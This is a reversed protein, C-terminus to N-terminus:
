AFYEMIMKLETLRHEQLSDIVGSSAFDNIKAPHVIFRNNTKLKRLFSEKTALDEKLLYGCRVLEINRPESFVFKEFYDGQLKSFLHSRDNMVRMKKIGKSVLSARISKYVVPTLHIHHHGDIAEVPIRCSQLKLIQSEFEQLIEQTEIFGLSARLLFLKHSFFQGQQDTLSEGGSLSKGDTLNFHLNFVVEKSYSLLEELGENLYHSNAMCSVSFLLGNKALELIGLNIGPSMGWDDACFIKDKKLLNNMWCDYAFDGIM